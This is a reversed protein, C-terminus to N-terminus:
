AGFPQSPKGEKDLQFAFAPGGDVARGGTFPVERDAKNIEGVKARREPAYHCQCGIGVAAVGGHETIFLRRRRSSPCDAILECM